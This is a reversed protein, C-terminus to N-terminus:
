NAFKETVSSHGHWNECWPALPFMEHRCCTTCQRTFCLFTRVLTSKCTHHSCPDSVSPRHKQPDSYAVHFTLACALSQWPIHIYIYILIIIDTLIHWINDSVIGSLIDSLSGSQVGSLIDGRVGSCTDPLTDSYIDSSSCTLVYQHFFDQVVKSPQFM